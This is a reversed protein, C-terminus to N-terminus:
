LLFINNKCHLFSTAAEKILHDFKVDDIISVSMLTGLNPLEGHRMAGPLIRAM